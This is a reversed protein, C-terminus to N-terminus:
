SQCLYLIDNFGGLFWSNKKYFTGFKKSVVLYKPSFSQINIMKGLRVIYEQGGRVVICLMSKWGNEYFRLFRVHYAKATEWCQRCFRSPFSHNMRPIRAGYSTRPTWSICAWWQWWLKSRHIFLLSFWRCINRSTKRPTLMRM